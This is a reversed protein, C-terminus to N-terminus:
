GKYFEVESISLTGRFRVKLLKGHEGYFLHRKGFSREVVDNLSVDFSVWGGRLEKGIISVIGENGDTRDSGLNVGLRIWREEPARGVVRSPMNVFTYVNGDTGFNAAFILRNCRTKQAEVIVYDMGYWGNPKIALGVPVPTDAPLSSFTPPIQGTADEKLLAWGHDLPSEHPLYGFPIKGLSVAIAAKETTTTEAKQTRNRFFIIVSFALWGLAIALVVVSPMKEKAVFVNIFVIVASVVAAIVQLVQGKNAFWEM